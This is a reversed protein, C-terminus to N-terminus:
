QAWTRGIEGIPASAIWRGPVLEYHLEETAGPESLYYVTAILSKVSRYDWHDNGAFAATDLQKLANVNRGGFGDLKAKIGALQGRHEAQTKASAWTLHLHDMYAPVGADIAGPTDTRPIVSDALFTVLALEDASYFGAKKEGAEANQFASLAAAGGLSFILGQLVQRRTTM